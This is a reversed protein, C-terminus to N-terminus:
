QGEEGGKVVKEALEEVRAKLRDIEKQFAVGCAMAQAFKRSLEDRETNLKHILDIGRNAELKWHDRKRAADILARIEELTFVETDKIKELEDLREPTLETM